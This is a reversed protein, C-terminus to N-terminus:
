KGNLKWIVLLTNCINNFIVNVLIGHHFRNFFSFIRFVTSNGYTCQKSQIIIRWFYYMNKFCGTFLEINKKDIILLAKVLNWKFKFSKRL